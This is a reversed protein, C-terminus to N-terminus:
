SYHPENTGTRVIRFKINCSPLSIKEHVTQGKKMSGRIEKWEPGQCSVDLVLIVKQVLIVNTNNSSTLTHRTPCSTFRSFLRFSKNTSVDKKLVPSLLFIVFLTM